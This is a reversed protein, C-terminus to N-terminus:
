PLLTAVLSERESGATRIKALPCTGIAASTSANAADVTPTSAVGAWATGERGAAGAAGVSACGGAAPGPM